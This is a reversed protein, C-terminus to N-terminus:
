PAAGTRRALGHLRASPAPVSQRVLTTILERDHPRCHVEQAALREASLLTETAQDRQGALAHGRAVDVLHTARRECSRSRGMLAAFDGHTLGRQARRCAIRRNIGSLDM